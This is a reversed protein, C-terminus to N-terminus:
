DLEDMEAGDFVDREDVDEFERVQMDGMDSLIERVVMDLEEDSFDRASLGNEELERRFGLFSKVGSFIKGIFRAELESYDEIDRADIEDGFEERRFGLFSKVGSFIKGLFRAELEDFGELDRAELSDVDLDRRFGLVSKIGSFIKGIFRRELDNFETPERTALQAGDERRFGLFSKVGGLIKGLFRAELEQSNMGRTALAEENSMPAANVLAGSAVIAVVALTSYSLKAM